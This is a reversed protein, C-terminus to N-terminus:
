RDASASASPHTQSRAPPARIASRTEDSTHAGLLLLEQSNYMGRHKEPGIFIVSKLTPFRASWDTKLIREFSYKVDDSTLEGANDSWM